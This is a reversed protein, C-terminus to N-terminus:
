QSDKRKASIPLAILESFEEGDSSEFIVLEWRFTEDSLYSIIEGRNLFGTTASVIAKNGSIVANPNDGPIFKDGSADITTSDGVYTGSEDRFLFRLARAKSGADLTVVASPILEIAQSVGEDKRAGERIPTRWYSDFDALVVSQGQLPFKLKSNTLTDPVRAVVASTAWIGAISLIAVLLGVSAKELNSLEKLTSCLLSKLSPGLPLESEEPPAVAEAITAEATVESEPKLEKEPLLDDSAPNEAITEESAEDLPRKEPMAAPSPTTTDLLDDLEGLEDSALRQSRRSRKALRERLSADESSQDRVLLKRQSRLEKKDSATPLQLDSELQAPAGEDFLDPLEIDLENDPSPSLSTPETAPDPPFDDQLDDQLDSEIITEENAEEEFLEGSQVESALESPDESPLQTAKTAPTSNAEEEAQQKNRKRRRSM